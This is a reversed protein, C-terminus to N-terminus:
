LIQSFDLPCCQNKGGYIKTLYFGSLKRKLSYWRYLLLDSLNMNSMMRVLDQETARSNAQLKWDNFSYNLPLDLGIPGKVIDYESMNNSIGVGYGMLFAFVCSIVVKEDVDTHNMYNRAITPTVM